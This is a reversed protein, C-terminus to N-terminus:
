DQSVAVHSVLVYLGRRVEGVGIREHKRCTQRVKAMIGAQM